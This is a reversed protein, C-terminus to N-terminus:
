FSVIWEGSAVRPERLKGSEHLDMACVKITSGVRVKDCRGGALTVRGRDVIGGPTVEAIGVSQRGDMSTVVVTYEKLQKVALMQGYPETWDKRVVGEGGDALINDIFAPGDWVRVLRMDDAFFGEMELRRLEMWRAKTPWHTAVLRQSELLDFAFFVGAPRAQLLALTKSTLMAGSKRTVFEGAVLSVGGGVERTQFEGDMKEQILSHAPSWIRAQDISVLRKEPKPYPTM